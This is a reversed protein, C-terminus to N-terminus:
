GEKSAEDKGWYFLWNIAQAILSLAIIIGSLTVGTDAMHEKLTNIYASGIYLVTGIFLFGTTKHKPFDIKLEMVGKIIDYLIYSRACYYFIENKGSAIM